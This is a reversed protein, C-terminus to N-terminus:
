VPPTWVAKPKGAPPAVANAAVLSVVPLAVNPNAAAASPLRIIPEEDMFNASPSVNASTAVLILSNESFVPTRAEIEGSAAVPIPLRTRLELRSKVISAPLVAPVKVASPSVAPVTSTSPVPRAAAALIETLPASM